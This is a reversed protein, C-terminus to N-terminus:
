GAHVSVDKLKLNLRHFLSLLVTRMPFKFSNYELTSFHKMIKQQVFLMSQIRCDRWLSMCSVKHYQKSSHWTDIYQLIQLLKFMISSHIFSANVHRGPLLTRIPRHAWWFGGLAFFFFFNGWHLVWWQNGMLRSGENSAGGWVGYVQTLVM